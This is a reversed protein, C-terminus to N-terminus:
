RKIGMFTEFMDGADLPPKTKPALKDENVVKKTNANFGFFSEFSKNINQFDFGSMQNTQRDTGKRPPIHQRNQKAAQLEQNYTKRKEPNSLVRYAESVERFKKECNADGPHADPHYEKSLKRYARKIEAEAAQQSLGLVEYLTKTEM